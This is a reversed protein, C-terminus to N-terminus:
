AFCCFSPKADEDDLQLPEMRKLHYDLTVHKPLIESKEHKDVIIEHFYEISKEFMRKITKSSSIQHCSIIYSKANWEKSRKEIEEQTVQYPVKDSKNGILIILPIDNYKKYKVVEKKWNELGLWSQRDSMDYIMFLIDTNRVYSSVLTRFREAGACDWIQSKIIQCNENNEDNIKDVKNKSFYKEKYEIYTNTLQTKNSLKYKNYEHIILDFNIGITPEIKSNYEENNLLHLLTSKGVGTDGVLVSKICYFPSIKEKSIYENDM